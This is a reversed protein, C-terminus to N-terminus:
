FQTEKTEFNFKAQMDAPLHSSEVSFPVNNEGRKIMVKSKPQQSSAGGQAMEIFRGNIVATSPNQIQGEVSPDNNSAATAGM